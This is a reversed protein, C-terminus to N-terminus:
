RKYDAFNQYRLAVESASLPREFLMLEDISGNLPWQHRTAGDAGHALESTGIRTLPDGHVGDYRSVSVAETALEGNVYLRMSTSETAPDAVGYVAM